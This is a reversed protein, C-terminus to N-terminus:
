DMNWKVSVLYWSIRCRTGHHMDSTNYVKKECNNAHWWRRMSVLTLQNMSERRNLLSERRNLWYVISGRWSVLHCECLTEHYSKEWVVKMVCTKKHLFKDWMNLGDKDNSQRIIILLVTSYSGTVGLKGSIQYGKWV